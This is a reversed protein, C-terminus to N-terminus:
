AFDGQSAPSAVGSPSYTLSKERILNGNEDTVLLKNPNQSASCILTGPFTNKIVSSSVVYYGILGYYGLIGTSYSAKLLGISADSIPQYVHYVTCAVRSKMPFVFNAPVVPPAVQRIWSTGGGISVRASFYTGNLTGCAIYFGSNGHFGSPDRHMFLFFYNSTYLIPISVILQATGYDLAYIPLKYVSVKNSEVQAYVIYLPGNEEWSNRMLIVAPCEFVVRSKLLVGNLDYLRLSSGNTGVIVNDPVSVSFDSKKTDGLGSLPCIFKNGTLINTRYIGDTYITYIWDGDFCFSKPSTGLGGYHFASVTFKLNLYGDYVYCNHSFEDTVAIDGVGCGPTLRGSDPVRLLKRTQPNYGVVM